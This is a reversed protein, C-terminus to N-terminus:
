FDGGRNELPELTIRHFRFSCDYAGVLLASPNPTAWYDSLSLQDAKGQWNVITRGDVLVSVRNKRVTVIVQSLQGQRFLSGTFTTENGVNRGDVNEIASRHEDGVSYNLLTAFRKGALQHGLILGNPSDLPEVILTLRYEGSPTFPLELRAGYRKPSVLTGDRSTWDGVTWCQAPDTQKLLDIEEDPWAKVVETSDAANSGAANSGVGDQVIWDEFRSTPRPPQDNLRVQFYGWLEESTGDQMTVNIRYSVPTPREFSGLTVTEPLMAQQEQPADIWPGNIDTQYRVRISKLTADDPWDLNLVVKEGPSPVIPEPLARFESFLRTQPDVTLDLPEWGLRSKQEKDLWSESIWGRYQGMSMVSGNGPEPHPLGVTHGCGEHYVVCDSGRYPVRWGDASVLGWGVGRDARYSARSGGSAAGPFHQGDHLNGEFEFGGETPALRYFDDLPRWNIESLVLLIPFADTKDQAFGIRRDTEQLTRYYIANADGSRLQSTSLQSVLPEPHILTRLKSEGQFERAHFKEIRQCYYDVRDRWDTLPQRDSPVFYVVTVDISTTEYKGDWTHTDAHCELSTTLLIVWALTLTHGAHIRM